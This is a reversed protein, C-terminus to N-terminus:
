LFHSFHLTARVKRKALALFSDTVQTQGMEHNVSPRELAWTSHSAPLVIVVSLTLMETKWRKTVM